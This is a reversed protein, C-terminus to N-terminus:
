ELSRGAPARPIPWWRLGAIDLLQEGRLTRPNATASPRQAYLLQQRPSRHTWNWTWAGHWLYIRQLRRALAAQSPGGLAHVLAAYGDASQGDALQARQRLQLVM